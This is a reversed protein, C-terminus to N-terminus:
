DGVRDANGGSEHERPRKKHNKCFNNFKYLLSFLRFYIVLFCTGQLRSTTIPAPEAIDYRANVPEPPRFCGCLIRSLKGGRKRSVM